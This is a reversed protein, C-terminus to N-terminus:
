GNASVQITSNLQHVPVARRWEDEDLFIADSLARQLRQVDAKAGSLNRLSAQWRQPLPPASQGGFSASESM